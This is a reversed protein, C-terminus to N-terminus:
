INTLLTKAKVSDLIPEPSENIITIDLKNRVVSSLFPRLWEETTIIHRKEGKATWEIGSFHSHIHGIGKLKKITEDYDIVKAQRASLHSFDVTLHCGTEKKLQLLESLSGFQSEKGTTEPALKVKWKNKKITDLLNNIEDRILNFTEEASKKQYFGAHFVVYKAGMSEARECSDLIRKKSAAIKAKDESVLNIYYPAHISLTIGYKKALKGVEQAEANEMRVGYTFEVELATLGQNKIEELGKVYGLGATGGPGLLIM